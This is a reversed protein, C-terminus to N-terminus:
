EPLPPLVGRARLLDLALQFMADKEEELLQGYFNLLKWREDHWTIHFAPHQPDQEDKQQERLRLALLAVAIDRDFDSLATALRIVKKAHMIEMIAEEHLDEPNALATRTEKIAATMTATDVPHYGGVRSHYEELSRLLAAIEYRMANEKKV